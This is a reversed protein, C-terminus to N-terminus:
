PNSPQNRGGSIDESMGHPGCSYFDFERLNEENEFVYGTGRVSVLRKMLNPICALEVEKPKTKPLVCLKNSSLKKVWHFVKSCM